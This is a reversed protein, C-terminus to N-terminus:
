VVGAFFADKFAQSKKGDFLVVYPFKIISDESISILAFTTYCTIESTDIDLFFERKFYKDIESRTTEFGEDVKTLKDRLDGLVAEVREIEGSLEKFNALHANLTKYFENSNTM